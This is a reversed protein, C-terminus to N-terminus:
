TSTTSKQAWGYGLAHNGADTANPRKRNSWAAAANSEMSMCRLWTIKPARTGRFRRQVVFLRGDLNAVCKSGHCSWRM